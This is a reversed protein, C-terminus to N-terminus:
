EAAQSITFMDTFGTINFIEYVDKSANVIKLKVGGKKVRILLRLGASSIYDMNKVDLTIQDKKYKDVISILEEGIRDVSNTDIAEEVAIVLDNEVLKAEFSMCLDSHIYFENEKRCNKNNM